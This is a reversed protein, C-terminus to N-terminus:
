MISCSETNEDSFVYPDAAPHVPLPPPMPPAPMYPRGYMMPPYMNNMHQQHQQNHNMMMPMYQQQPHYQPPPPQTQMGQYYGGTMAAPLGQVAAINRIQNMPNPGMQTQGMNGNNNGKGGKGGKGHQPHPVDFEDFDDDIHHGEFKGGGKKGEKGKNNGGGGGSGKNKNKPTDHGGGKSSKQGFGLLKGLLGGSSKNKGGGKGHKDKKGGDGKNKKGGNKFESNGGKGKFQVPLDMVDGKKANIAGGGGGHGKNNGNMPPGHPGRGNMMMGAMPMMKNPMAHGHGHGFEEEDEDEDEDDDSEDYDDFGDDSADFDDEEPLNFKVSKHDKSPVKLDKPGKNQFHPFQPQGGGKGQEKGGHHSKNDKGGKGHGSQLQQLQNNNPFPFMMGRQGGWLEAHKGSSKLKKILKAPEVNGSVVVKGQEADISM